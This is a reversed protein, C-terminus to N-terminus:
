HLMRSNIKSTFCNGEKTFSLGAKRAQCFVLRAASERCPEPTSLGGQSALDPDANADIGAHNM